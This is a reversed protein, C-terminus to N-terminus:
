NDMITVVWLGLNFLAKHWINNDMDIITTYFGGCSISKGKIDSLITPILRMNKDGLGLQGYYNKGMVWINNDLDIIATIM